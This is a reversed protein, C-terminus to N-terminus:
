LIILLRNPEPCLYPRPLPSFMLALRVFFSHTRRVPAHTSPHGMAVILQLGRVHMDFRDGGGKTEDGQGRECRSGGTRVGREICRNAAGGLHVHRRATVAAAAVAVDPVVGRDAIVDADPVNAVDVLVARQFAETTRVLFPMGAVPHGRRQRESQRRVVRRGKGHCRTFELGANLGTSHCHECPIPMKQNM